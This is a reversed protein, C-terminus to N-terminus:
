YSSRTHSGSMSPLTCAGAAVCQKYQGNTVEYKDIWYADLYVQRVPKEDGDGTTSGMEFSGEPVYVMKMGDKQRIITSGIGYASTPSPAITPTNTNIPLPTTTPLRWGPPPVLISQGVYLESSADWDNISM